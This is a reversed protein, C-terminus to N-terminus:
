FYGARWDRRNIGRNNNTDSNNEHKPPDCTSANNYLELQITRGRPGAIIDNFTQNDYTEVRKLM